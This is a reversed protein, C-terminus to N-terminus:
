SITCLCRPSPINRAEQLLEEFEKEEQRLSAICAAVTKELKDHDQLVDKLSRTKSNNPLARLFNDMFKVIVIALLQDCKLDASGPSQNDFNKNIDSMMIESEENQQQDFYEEAIPLLQEVLYELNYDCEEAISVIRTQQYLTLIPRNQDVRCNLIRVFLEKTIEAV